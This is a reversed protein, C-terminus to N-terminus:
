IISIYNNLINNVLIQIPILIITSSVLVFTSFVFKSCITKKLNYIERNKLIDKAFKLWTISLIIISTILISNPLLMAILAYISAKVNGLLMILFSITIGMSFGKYVMVLYILPSFIVSCGLVIILIFYIFIDYITSIAIDYNNPIYEGNLISENSSQIYGLLENKIEIDIINAIVIGVICGIVLVTLLIFIKGRNHLIANLIIGKNEFM